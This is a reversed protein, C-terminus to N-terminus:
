YGPMKQTIRRVNWLRNNWIRVGFLVGKGVRCSYAQPAFANEFCPLLENMILHHVTRDRLSAAFVERYKPFKVIFAISSGITYTRNNIEDLLKPLDVLVEANYDIVSDKHKKTCICNDYSRKLEEPYFM